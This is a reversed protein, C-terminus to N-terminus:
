RKGEGCICQVKNMVTEASGSTTALKGDIFFSPMGLPGKKANGRWDTLCFGGKQAVM